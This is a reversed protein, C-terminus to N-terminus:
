GSRTFTIKTAVTLIWASSKGAPDAKIVLTGLGKKDQKKYVAETQKVGATNKVTTLSQLKSKTTFEDTNCTTELAKLSPMSSEYFLTTITEDPM